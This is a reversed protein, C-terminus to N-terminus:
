LHSGDIWPAGKKITKKRDIRAQHRRDWFFECEIVDKLAPFKKLIEDRNPNVANGLLLVDDAILVANTKLFTSIEQEMNFDPLSQTSRGQYWWGKEDAFIRDGM